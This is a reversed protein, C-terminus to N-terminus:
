RVYEITGGYIIANDTVIAHTASVYLESAASTDVSSTVASTGATFPLLGASHGIQSASTLNRITRYDEFITLSATSVDRYLTGGSGGFRLRATKANANNTAGYAIQAIIAGKSGLLGAAVPITIGQETIVGVYAGPGTTAFATDTGATPIGTTYTSNYITGATTSSFKTWYWGAASGASIANAPFYCYAGASFTAPLATVGTLAGNDAISGSSTIIFPIAWQAIVGRAGTVNGTLTPNTFVSGAPLGGGTRFM